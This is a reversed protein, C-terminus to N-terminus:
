MQFCWIMIIYISCRTHIQVFFSRFKRGDCCRESLSTSALSTGMGRIGYWLIPLGESLWWRGVDTQVRTYPHISMTTHKIMHTPFLASRQQDHIGDAAKRNENCRATHLRHPHQLNWLTRGNCCICRLRPNYSRCWCLSGKSFCCLSFMCFCRPTGQQPFTPRKFKWDKEEFTNYHFSMWKKLKGM